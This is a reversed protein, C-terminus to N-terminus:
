RVSIVPAITYDAQNAFHEPMSDFVSREVISERDIARDIALVGNLHDIEHQLLEALDRPVKDWHQQQGRENQFKLSISEHRLLRVLLNPFSMCDDWMSFKEPSSWIIEPNVMSIREEALRLAILRKGIGIQPASIARGFGKEEIFLDLRAHLERLEAQFVADTTDQVVESKQRLRPDGLLIVPRIEQM